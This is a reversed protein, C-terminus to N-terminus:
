DKKTGGMWSPMNPVVNEASWPTLALAAAIRLPKLLAAMGLVGALAAAAKGGGDSLSGMDALAPWEGTSQHYVYLIIPLSISWYCVAVIGVSAGFAPGVEQALEGKEEDTMNMIRGFNLRDGLSETKASNAIQEPLAARGTAKRLADASASEVQVEALLREEIRDLRSRGEKGLKIGIAYRDETSMKPLRRALAEWEKDSEPLRNIDFNPESDPGGPSFEELVPPGVGKLEGQAQSFKVQLADVESQLEAQNPLKFAQAKSLKLIAADLQTEVAAAAQELEQPTQKSDAAQEEPIGSAGAAHRVSRASPGLRPGLGAPVFAGSGRDERSSPCHSFSHRWKLALLSVVVCPFCL